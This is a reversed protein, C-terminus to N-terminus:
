LHDDSILKSTIVGQVRMGRVQHELEFDNSGTAYERLAGHDHRVVGKIVDVMWEVSVFVTDILVSGAAAQAHEFRRRFEDFDITGSVDDDASKMMSDINAHPLGHERAFAALEKKDIAGSKDSDISDFLARVDRNSDKGLVATLFDEFNEKRHRTAALGFYRLELTQHLFSTYVWVSDEAISCETQAIKLYKKWSIFPEKRGLERVKDRLEVLAKPLPERFGRTTEAM